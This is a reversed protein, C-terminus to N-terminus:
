EWLRKVFILQFSLFLFISSFRLFRILHLFFFFFFFVVVCDVVKTLVCRLPFEFKLLLRFVFSLFLSPSRSLTFPPSSSPMLFSSATHTHFPAVVVYLRILNNWLRRIIINRWKTKHSNKQTAECPNKKTKSGKQHRSAIKKWLKSFQTRMSFFFFFSSFFYTQIFFTNSHRLYLFSIHIHFSVYFSFLPVRQM